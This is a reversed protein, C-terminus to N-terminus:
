EDVSVYLLWIRLSIVFSLNEVMAHCIIHKFHKFNTEAIHGPVGSGPSPHWGRSAGLLWTVGRSSEVPFFTLRRILQFLAIM